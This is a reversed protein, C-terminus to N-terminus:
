IKDLLVFLPFVFCLVLSWVFSILSPLYSFRPLLCFVISYRVFSLFCFLFDLYVSCVQFIFQEIKECCHDALLSVILDRNKESLSNTSMQIITELPITIIKPILVLIPQKEFVSDKEDFRLGGYVGGKSLTFQFIEKITGQIM